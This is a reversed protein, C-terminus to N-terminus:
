PLTPGELTEKPMRYEEKLEYQLVQKNDRHKISHRVVFVHHASMCSCVNKIIYSSPHAHNVKM